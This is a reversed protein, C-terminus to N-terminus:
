LALPGCSISISVGLYNHPRRSLRPVRKANEKLTVHVTRFLSVADPLLQNRLEAV